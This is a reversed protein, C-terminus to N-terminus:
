VDPQYPEPQNGEEVWKLYAAYDINKPDEPIWAKDEPRYIQTSGSAEDYRIQYKTTM